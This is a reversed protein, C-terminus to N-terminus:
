DLPRDYVLTLDGAVYCFQYGWKLWHVLINHYGDSTDVVLGINDDNGHIRHRVFDGVNYKTM